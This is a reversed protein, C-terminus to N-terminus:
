ICDLKFQRYVEKAIAPLLTFCNLNGLGQLIQRIYFADDFPNENNYNEKLLRLLVHAASESSLACQDELPVL